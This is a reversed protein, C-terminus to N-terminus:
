SILGQKFSQLYSLQIEIIKKGVPDDKRVKDILEQKTFEGEGGISIKRKSSLCRLRAVVLDRVENKSIQIKKM